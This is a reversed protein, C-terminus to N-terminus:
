RWTSFPMDARSAANRPEPSILKVITEIETDSTATNMGRSSIPPIMPRRNWSNAMVTLMVIRLHAADPELKWTGEYLAAFRKLAADTGWVPAGRTIWLFDQSDTLVAGVAKIDHTNQAAVFRDFVARVEDQPAAMSPGSTAVLALATLLCRINM